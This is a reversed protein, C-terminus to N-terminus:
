VLFPIGGVNFGSGSTVTCLNLLSYFLCVYDTAVLMLM